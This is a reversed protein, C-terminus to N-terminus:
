QEQPAPNASDAPLVKNNVILPTGNKLKLQGSTVVEAGEDLGKVIAVQDGRTPGLTVFTQQATPKPASNAGGTGANGGASAGTDNNQPADKAAAAPKVLFVTDGYPNYTIATQPLTLYRQKAGIDITVSGFMGPTLLRGPNPLTAEVQVNRTTADVKPNITTIVGRFVKGPFADATVTVSRGSSMSGLQRQPINFDIYIPDLQQLTVVVDGPNLYQGPAVKTIGVRGSFPARLTKKAVLAEQQVVAARASKLNAEDAEHQAQSIAKAELQETSRKYNAQALQESAQLSQLQAVLDDARLKLLTDGTHVEAGPKFSLDAVIGSVELAVDVGRVARLTGVAELTPQWEQFGAKQTSVTAPPIGQSAMYKKIAANKFLNFGVIGGLVIIVVVLMIIMRITLKKNM